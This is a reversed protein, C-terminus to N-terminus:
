GNSQNRPPQDTGFVFFLVRPNDTSTTNTPTSSIRQERRHQPPHEANPTNIEYACGQKLAVGPKHKAAPVACDGNSTLRQTFRPIGSM